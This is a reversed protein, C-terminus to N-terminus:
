TNTINLGSNIQKLLLSFINELLYLGHKRCALIGTAMVSNRQLKEQGITQVEKGTEANLILFYPDGCEQPEHYIVITKM